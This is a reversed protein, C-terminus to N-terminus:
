ASQKVASIDLALKVKDAVLVNGSGLAQNFKMGYDGRSLQGTVELGVRENGWPDIDTGQVEAHLVIENTLGHITLQGTIRFEEDDLAEISTSEFRLEPFEAADFFDPSRLHDDRQPENTDVSQTKVTGYVKASSLDEGIEITGEFDTFEGRVTAIGMHKVAFGVKSHARDVTWTGTPIVTSPSTTISM